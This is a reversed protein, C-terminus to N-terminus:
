PVLPARQLVALIERDAEVESFVSALEAFTAAHTRIKQQAVRIGRVKRAVGVALAVGALIAGLAFFAWSEAIGAAVSARVSFWGAVRTIERAAISLAFWVGSVKGVVNWFRAQIRAAQNPIDAASNTAFLLFRALPNVGATQLKNWDFVPYGRYLSSADQEELHRIVVVVKWSGVAHGVENAMWSPGSGPVVVVADARTVAILSDHIVDDHDRGKVFPIRVVELGSGSLGAEIRVAVDEYDHHFSIFVRGSRLRAGLAVSALTLAIRLVGVYAVATAAVLLLQLLGRGYAARVEEWGAHVLARWTLTGALVTLLVLAVAVIM